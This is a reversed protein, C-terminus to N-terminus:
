STWFAPPGSRACDTSVQSAAMNTVGRGSSSHIRQNQCPCKTDVLPM